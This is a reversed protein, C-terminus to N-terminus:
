EARYRGKQKWGSKNRKKDNFKQSQRRQGKEHKAQTSKRANKRHERSLYIHYGVITGAYAPNTAMWFWHIPQIVACWCHFWRRWHWWKGDLDFANIPDQNTYDYANASGGPVPDVQLFRGMTPVYLRVGMLTIGALDDTERQKAGLWSYRPSTGTTRPIGFETADFTSLLGTATPDLTATAITDGHLNALQLTTGTASDQIAVLDSGFASIIRTWDTGTADEAIWAPSDTDDAYHNTRTGTSGGTDTRGRLRRNPDLTWTHTTGAQTLARVMDSTYYAATVDAPTGAAAAPVTTIRGFTDYAFGTDTIRDATDYTHSTTTGTAATDCTGDAAPAKTNLSLRNSDADFGYTRITCGGGTPTDQTSTLRGAPDYTNDQASLDSTQALIQDNTSQNTHFDLWTCDTTCNTTKVYALETPTGTPDITTRAEM